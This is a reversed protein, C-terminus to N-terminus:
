ILPRQHRARLERQPIKFEFFAELADWIHGKGERTGNEINRYYITSISLIASMERQKKGAAKRAQQLTQRM